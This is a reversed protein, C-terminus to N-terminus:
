ISSSISIESLFLQVDAVAVTEEDDIRKIGETNSNPSCYTQNM